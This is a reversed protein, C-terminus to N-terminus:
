LLKASAQLITILLALLMRPLPSAAASAPVLSGCDFDAPAVTWAGSLDKHLNESDAAVAKISTWNTMITPALTPATTPGVALKECKVTATQQGNSRCTLTAACGAGWGDSLIALSSYVAPLHGCDCQCRGPALNADQLLKKIRRGEEDRSGLLLEPTRGFADAPYAEACWQLLLTITDISTGVSAALHLATQNSSGPGSTPINVIDRDMSLLTHLVNVNSVLAATHLPTLQGVPGGNTLAKDDAGAVILTRAVVASRVYHLPTWGADDRVNPDAQQQLLADVISASGNVDPLTAAHHLATKGGALRQTVITGQSMLYEAVQSHGNDIAVSLPSQLDFGLRHKSANNQLFFEVIDVRGIEAADFLATRGSGPDVADLELCGTPAEACGWTPLTLTKLVDLRGMQVVSTLPAGTTAFIPILDWHNNRLGYILPINGSTDRIVSSANRELLWKSNNVDGISAAYFLATWGRNDQQNISANVADFAYGLAGNDAANALGAITQFPLAGIDNTVDLKAGNDVLTKLFEVDHTLHALTDGRMGPYQVTARTYGKRGGGRRRGDTAGMLYVASDTARARLAVHLPLDGKGDPAWSFDVSRGGGCACCGKEASQGGNVAYSQFIGWSAKWGPGYGGTANCYGNILHDACTMVPHVPDAAPMRSTWGEPDDHCRFREILLQTVSAWPASHHWVSRQGSDEHYRDVGLDLLRGVVLDFGGSGALLLPTQQFANEVSLQVSATGYQMTAAYAFDQTPLGLAGQLLLEVDLRCDFNQGLLAFRALEAPDGQGLAEIIQPMCWPSSTVIPNLTPRPTTTATTTSTTANGNESQGSVCVCACFLLFAANRSRSRSGVAVALFCESAFRYWDM